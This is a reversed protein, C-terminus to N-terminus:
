QIAPRYIAVVYSTVSAAHNASPVFAVRTPRPASGNVTVTVAGSTQTGGSNDRARATLSYTGAAVNTWAASYPSTTDTGILQSGVYFDVGVM